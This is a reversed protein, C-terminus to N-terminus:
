IGNQKNRVRNFPPEPEINHFKLEVKEQIILSNVHKDKCM